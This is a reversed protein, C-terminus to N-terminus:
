LSAPQFLVWSGNEKTYMNHTLQLEDAIGAEYATIAEKRMAEISEISNKDAFYLMNRAPISVVIEPSQLLETAKEWFEDVVLLSTEFKKDLIARYFPKGGSEPNITRIRASDRVREALNRRASKVIDERKMLYLALHAETVLELNEVTERVFCVVIGEALAETILPNNRGQARAIQQDDTAKIIPFISRGISVFGVSQRGM